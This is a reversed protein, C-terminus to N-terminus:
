EVPLSHEAFFEWIVESANFDMSTAGLVDSLVPRGPWTHGGNEILYVDIVGRDTCDEFRRFQTSTIDEDEQNPLLEYEGDDEVNCGNYRTWFAIYEPVSASVIVQGGLQTQVRTGNWPISEDETGHIFMVPVPVQSEACVDESGQYLSGAIPAFAAFLDPAECALRQTMFGGNSFGTVYGRSRDLNLDLSLDDILNRLFQTDNHDGVDNFYASGRVYNWGFNLGDPYVVIFNNEDAVESMGTIYAIGNGNDTRGHLAFVFPTPEAPNYSQPVYVRYTRPIEVATPDSVFEDPQIKWSEDGAFYGLVIETADVGAQNLTYDGRRMWNNGAGPVGYVNVSTGDECGNYQVLSDFPVDVISTDCANHDIWYTM